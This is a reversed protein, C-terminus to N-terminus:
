EEEEDENLNTTIVNYGIQCDECEYYISDNVGDEGMLNAGCKECNM